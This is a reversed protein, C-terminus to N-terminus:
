TPKRHVILIRSEANRIEIPFIDALTVLMGDIDTGSFSVTVKTDLLDNLNPDLQILKTSYRNADAVLESLPAGEYKLRDQRWAAFNETRFDDIESLGESKTAYLKQGASLTKRTIMSTPADNLIFPHGVEVRGEAVSLRVVGGNNRVDFVTGLVKATFNEATVTFPRGPDPVVDFVAAGAILTVHRLSDSLEAEIQSAAGLTVISGDSLVVAKTEGVGTAHAALLPAQVVTEHPGRLFPLATVLLTIVLAFAAAAGVLLPRNAALYAPLSELFAASKGSFSPKFHRKAIRERGLTGLAAWMTIARDYADAHRVDAQRWAEFKAREGATIEGAEILLRWEIATERIDPPYTLDDDTM